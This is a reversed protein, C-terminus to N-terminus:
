DPPPLVIAVCNVRTLGPPCVCLVRWIFGRVSCTCRARSFLCVSCAPMVFLEQWLLPAKRRALKRRHRACTFLSVKSIVCVCFFLRAWSVCVTVAVTCVCVARSCVFLGVRGRQTPAIVGGAPNTRRGRHTPDTRRKSPDGVTPSGVPTRVWTAVDDDEVPSAMTTGGARGDGRGMWEVSSTRVYVGRDPHVPSRKEEEVGAPSM